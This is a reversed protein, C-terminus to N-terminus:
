PDHSQHHNLPLHNPQHTVPNRQKEQQDTKRAIKIQKSVREANTDLVIHINNVEDSRHGQGDTKALVPVEREM